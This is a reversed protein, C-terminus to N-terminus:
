FKTLFEMKTVILIIVAFCCWRFQSYMEHSKRLTASVLFKCYNVHRKFKTFSCQAAFNRSDMWSIAAIFRKFKKQLFNENLRVLNLRWQGGFGGVLGLSDGPGKKERTELTILSIAM